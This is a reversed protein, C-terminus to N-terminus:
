QLKFHVPLRMRLRVPRNGQKAASWKGMNKIVRHAEKGCGGGIDRLIKTSELNGKTDLIIEIFVTGEIGNEAAVRPYKINNRLYTLFAIDSCKKREYQDNEENICNGYYAMQSAISVIEAPAKEKPLQPPAPAPPLEEYVAAPEYFTTDAAQTTDANLTPPLLEKLVIDPSKELKIEDITEIKKPIPIEKKPKQHAPTRIIKVEEDALIIKSIYKSMPKDYITYNIIAVVASLATFLGVLFNTTRYSAWQNKM